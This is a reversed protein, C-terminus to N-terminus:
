VFCMAGGDRHAACECPLSQDRQMDSRPEVAVCCQYYICPACPPEQFRQQLGCRHSPLYRKMQHPWRSGPWVALHSWCICIQQSSSASATIRWDQQWPCVLHCHPHQPTQAQSNFHLPPSTPAPSVPTLVRALSKDVMICWLEHTITRSDPQSLKISHLPTRRALKAM